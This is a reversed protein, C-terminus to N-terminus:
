GLARTAPGTWTKGQADTWQVRWERTATGLSASSAWYGRADTTVTRLTKWTKGKEHQQVTVKTTAGAPRALGWLSVKSSGSSKKAV